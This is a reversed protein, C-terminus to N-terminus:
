YLNGIGVYLAHPFGGTQRVVQHDSHLSRRTCLLLLGLLTKWKCYTWFHTITFSNYLYRHVQLTSIQLRSGKFCLHISLTEKELTHTVYCKCLESAYGCVIWQLARGLYCSAPLLTLMWQPDPETRAMSQEPFWGSCLEINLLPHSVLALARKCGEGQHWSCLEKPSDGIPAVTCLDDTCLEWARGELYQM